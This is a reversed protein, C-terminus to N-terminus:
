RISTDIHLMAHERLAKVGLKGEATVPWPEHWEVLNRPIEYAALVDRCRLRMLETTVLGSKRPRGIAVVRDGWYPDPIAVAHIAEFEVGFEAALAAIAWTPASVHRKRRICSTADDQDAASSVCCPGACRTAAM